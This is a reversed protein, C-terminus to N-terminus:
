INEVVGERHRPVQIVTQVHNMLVHSVQLTQKRVQHLGNHDPPRSLPSVQENGLHPLLPIVDLRGNKDFSTLPWLDLQYNKICMYRIM